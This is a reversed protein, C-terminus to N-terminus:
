AKLGLEPFKVLPEFEADHEGIFKEMWIMDYWRGFKYGCKHFRGVETYGLHAHFEASNRTLYEDDDKVPYGICAYLNLIHQKGSIRELEAYLLKGVGSRTLGQKVYISTEAARDYAARGKFTGTYAYGIIEGNRVAKLYPYTMLTNIIRERFEEASPEEADDPSVIEVKIDQM